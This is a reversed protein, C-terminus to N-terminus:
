KGRPGMLQGQTESSARKLESFNDELCQIEISYSDGKQLVIAQSRFRKISNVFVSFLGKSLMHPWTVKLILFFSAFM